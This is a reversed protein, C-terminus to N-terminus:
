FDSLHITILVSFVVSKETRMWSIFSTKAMDTWIEASLLNFDQVSREATFFGKVKETDIKIRESSAAGMKDFVSLDDVEIIEARSKEYIDHMKAPKNNKIYLNITKFDKGLKKALKSLGVNDKKNKLAKDVATIAEKYAESLTRM